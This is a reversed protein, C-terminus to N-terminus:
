ADDPSDRRDIISALASPHKVWLVYEDWTMGLYEHLPEGSFGVHWEAVFDDVDDLSAQGVVALDLYRAENM